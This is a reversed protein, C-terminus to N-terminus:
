TEWEDKGKKEFKDWLIDILNNGTMIEWIVIAGTLTEIICFAVTIIVALNNVLFEKM